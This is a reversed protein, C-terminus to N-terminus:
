NTRYVFKYGFKMITKIISPDDPFVKKRLSNVHMDVTRSGVPLEGHWVERYIQQKSLPINNNKMFYKLLEFEKQTLQLEVGNRMVILSASDISLDGCVVITDDKPINMHTKIASNLELLGFFPKTFYGVAGAESCIFREYEALKASVVIVPIDRYKPNNKLEVLIDYGDKTPLMLDIMILDPLRSEDLAERFPEYQPFVEVSLPCVENITELSVKLMTGITEDDEIYYIKRIM